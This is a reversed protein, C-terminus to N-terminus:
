VLNQPRRDGRESRDGRPVQRLPRAEVVRGPRRGVVHRTRIRSSARWCDSRAGNSPPSSFFSAALTCLMTDSWGTDGDLTLPEDDGPDATVLRSSVGTTTPPQNEQTRTGGVFLLSDMDSSRDPRGSSSSKRRIPSTLTAYPAGLGDGISSFRSGPPPVAEEPRAGWADRRETARLPAEGGTIVTGSAPQPDAPVTPPQRRAKEHGVRGQPPRPVFELLENLEVMHSTAMKANM